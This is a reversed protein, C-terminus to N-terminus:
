FSSASMAQVAVPLAVQVEAEAEALAKARTWVETSTVEVRWQSMTTKSPSAAIM